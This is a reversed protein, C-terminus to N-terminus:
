ISLVLLLLDIASREYESRCPPPVRSIRRLFSGVRQANWQSFIHFVSVVEGSGLLWTLVKSRYYRENWKDGVTSDDDFKSPFWRKIGASIATSIIDPQEKIIAHNGLTAVVVDFGLKTLQLLKGQSPTPDGPAGEVILERSV